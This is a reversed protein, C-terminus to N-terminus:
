LGEFVSAPHQQRRVIRDKAVVIMRPREELQKTPGITRDTRSAAVSAHAPQAASGRPGAQHFAEIASTLKGDGGTGFEMLAMDPECFPAPRRPQDGGGPRTQRDPLDCALKVHTVGGGPAHKAGDRIPPALAPDRSSSALASLILLVIKAPPGSRAGQQAQFKLRVRTYHVQPPGQNGVPRRPRRGLAHPRAPLDPSFGIRM